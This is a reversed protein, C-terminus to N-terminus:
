TLRCRDEFVTVFQHLILGWNQLAMNWKKEINMIALYVAKEASLDDPFQVKTKIYKRIGRNLNEITNTTYILKRIELPFDFYSTLNNWNNQWSGIAYKYKGGWKLEFGFLAQEAAEKTPAAYVEKLDACFQKRDKWVVYKCSNRIQHVICLQTITNPFVGQIAETFGKLNDTSAILIDEVGRAKLDTLVSLWFSASESEATWMGLVEKLGNQKLGIVLYICKNQYKGSHKIKLMIGDMWVVYYVRELPRAQWAKVHEIIHATVNSITGESVDVGYVQKVQESIDSTTMGRSYMGIIAEELKDSMRSGKPILQPSYEANRDRPINLVMNGLSETKVKKSYTGNRSNGSNYGEKSYKEYGLHEDLEAQLMEEVGQKFLSNFFSHFDEKSKFQKFFDKPLFPQQQDSNDKNM